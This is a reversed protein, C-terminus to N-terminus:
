WHPPPRSSGMSTPSRGAIRYFDDADRAVVHILVDTIGCRGRVGIAKPIGDLSEAIPTLKRRTVSTLIFATLPYGLAAPDIRREFPHLM